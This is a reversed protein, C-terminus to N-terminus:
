ASVLSVSIASLRRGQRVELARQLMLVEANMSSAIMAVSVKGV